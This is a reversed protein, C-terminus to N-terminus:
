IKLTYTKITKTLMLFYKINELINMCKIKKWFIFVLLIVAPCFSYTLLCTSSAMYFGPSCALICSRGVLVGTGLDGLRTVHVAKREPMNGLRTGM